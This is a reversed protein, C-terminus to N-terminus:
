RWIVDRESCLSQLAKGADEEAASSFFAAVPTRDALSSLVEQAEFAKALQGLARQLVLACFSSFMNGRYLNRMCVRLRALLSVFHQVSLFLGLSRVSSNESRILVDLLRLSEEEGLVSRQKQVMLESATMLFDRIEASLPDPAPAQEASARCAAYDGLAFHVLPQSFLLM